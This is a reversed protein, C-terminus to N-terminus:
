WNEDSSENQEDADATQETVEVPNNSSGALATALACEIEQATDHEEAFSMVDGLTELEEHMVYTSMEESCQPLMDHPVMHANMKVFVMKCLTENEVSRRKKTLNDGFANWLREVAISTPKGGLVRLALKRLICDVNVQVTWFSTPADQESVEGLVESDIGLSKLTKEPHTGIFARVGGELLRKKASCQPINCKTAVKAVQPCSDDLLTDSFDRVFQVVRQIIETNGYTDGSKEGIVVEENQVFDRMHKRPDLLLAAFHQPRLYNRFRDRWIRRLDDLTDATLLDPFDSASCSELTNNLELYMRAADSLTASDAGLKAITSQIPSTLKVFDHVRRWFDSSMVATYTAAYKTNARIDSPLSNDGSSLLDEEMERLENLDDQSLGEADIYPSAKSAAALRPFESHLVAETLVARYRQLSQCMLVNSAFRTKVPAALAAKTSKAVRCESQREAVASQSIQGIAVGKTCIHLLNIGSLLTCCRMFLKRAPGHRFVTVICNATRVFTRISRVKMQVTFWYNNYYEQMFFTYVHMEYKFIYMVFLCMDCSM